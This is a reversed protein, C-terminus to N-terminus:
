ERFWLKLGFVRLLVFILKARRLVEFEKLEARVLVGLRINNPKAVSGVVPFRIWNGPNSFIAGPKPPSGNPPGCFVNCACSSRATVFPLCEIRNPPWYVYM